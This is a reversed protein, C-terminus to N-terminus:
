IPWTKRCIRRATEHHHRGLEYENFIPWEKIQKVINNNYSRSSVSSLIIFIRLLHDRHM